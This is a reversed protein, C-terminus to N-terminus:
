SIPLFGLSELIIVCTIMKFYSCHLKTDLSVSAQCLCISWNKYSSLPVVLLLCFMWLGSLYVFAPIERFVVSFQFKGEPFTARYDVSENSVMETTPSVSRASVLRDLHPTHVRADYRVLESGLDKFSLSLILKNCVPSHRIRASKSGPSLFWLNSSNHILLCVHTWSQM